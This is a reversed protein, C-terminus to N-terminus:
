VVVLVLLNTASLTNSTNNWTLNASQLLTTSANGILIQNAYLYNTGTGGRSVTLVVSTINSSNLTSLRTNLAYVTSDPKNVITNNWNSQFNTPKNIITSTWDSQFNTPKNLTIKNYNLASISTGIGLLDQKTSLDNAIVFGYLV